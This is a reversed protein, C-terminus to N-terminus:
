RSLHLARALAQRVGSAVSRIRAARPPLMPAHAAM